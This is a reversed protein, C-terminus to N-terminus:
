AKQCRDHAVKSRSIPILSRNEEKSATVLAALILPRWVRKLMFVESRIITDRMLPRIQEM